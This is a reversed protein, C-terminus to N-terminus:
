SQIRRYPHPLPPSRAPRGRLSSVSGGLARLLTGGGRRATGREKSRRRRRAEEEEKARRALLTEVGTWLAFPGVDADDDALSLIAERLDPIPVTPFIRHLRIRCVTPSPCLVLM